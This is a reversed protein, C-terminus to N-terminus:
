PVIGRPSSLFNTNTMLPLIHSYAIWSLSYRNTSSLFTLKQRCYSFFCSVLTLPAKTTRDWQSLVVSWKREAVKVDNGLNSRWWVFSGLSPSVCSCKCLLWVHKNCYKIHSLYSSQQINGKHIFFYPVNEKIKMENEKPSGQDTRAETLTQTIKPDFGLHQACCLPSCVCVWMCTKQQSLSSCLKECLVGNNKM